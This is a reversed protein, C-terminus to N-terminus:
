RHCDGAEHGGCSADTSRLTGALYAMVLADPDTESAGTIVTVQHADFLERAAGGMNGAIVVDAGEGHLWAPLAGPLHPPAPLDRRDLIACRGPDVEFLAFQSCRGFHAALMDGAVPVAIKVIEGGDNVGAHLVASGARGRQVQAGQHAVTATPTTM